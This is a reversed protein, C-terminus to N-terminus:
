RIIIFKDYHTGLDSEVTYIYVDSVIYQNFETRLDWKEKGSGDNHEIKHVLDGNTTFIKITCTGPLGTFTITDVEGPLNKGAASYPNPVVRIADMKAAQTIPATAPTVGNPAWGTWCYYKSSELSVGPDEWNQSGDDYAVVYYFYQYIENVDTDYCENATGDYIKRYTSDRAGVARYVRYGKFDKVGTDFDEDNRSEDSWEIKIKPGEAAVWLNAPPRPADPVDYKERGGAKSGNVNWDAAKLAKIVSDRGTKVLTEVQSMVADSYQSDWAKKGWERCLEKNIGGAAIVYSINISEGFDMDYPGFCTYGSPITIAPDIQRHPTDLPEWHRGAVFQADYQEQYTKVVRGLDYDREQRIVTSNPQANDNVKEKTSKDAYLAGMAIWAPSLIEVWREDKSPDGWDNVGGELDGDYFLYFRRDNGEDSFPAIFEGWEDNAGFSYDRGARSNWPNVTWGWWFDNIKQGQLVSPFTYPWIKPTDGPLGFVKGNNTLKIDYIIYDQHKPNSYGYTWREFEVGMTYRWVSKIGREAVLNPDVATNADHQFDAQHAALFNDGGDPTINLGNVFVNPQPWRQYFIQTVCLLATQNSQNKWYPLYDYDYTRYMGSTWYPFVTGDPATWNKCGAISGTKRVNGGWMERISSYNGTLYGGPWAYQGSWGEAGDYECNAWLRGIRMFHMGTNADAMEVLFATLLLCISAITVLRKM